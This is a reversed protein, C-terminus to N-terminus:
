PSVVVSPPGLAAGTAGVYLPQVTFLLGPPLVPHPITATHRGDIAGYTAFYLVSTSAGDLWTFGFPTASQPALLSIATAFVAGAPGQSAITLQTGTTTTTASGFPLIAPQVPGAVPVAGQGAVLQTSPDLLISGSTADIAPRGLSGRITSRTAVLAGGQLAVGPGGFLSNAGPVTCGVLVVTSGSSQLGPGASPECLVHEAVLQSDTAGIGFVFSRALHVQTSRIVGVSWRQTNNSRLDRVAVPGACDRVQLPVVSLGGAGVLEFGVVAAAENAPLDRVTIANVGLFLNMQLRAGRGVVRIGKAIDLPQTYTGPLVLVTDGPAAAAIAPPITAFQQGPGVTLTQQALLAVTTFALVAGHRALDQGRLAFHRCAATPM